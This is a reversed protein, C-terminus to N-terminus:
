RRTPSTLPRTAGRIPMEAAAGSTPVTPFSTRPSTLGRRSRSRRNRRRRRRQQRTEARATNVSAALAIALVAPWLMRPQQQAARAWIRELM